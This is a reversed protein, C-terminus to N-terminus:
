DAKDLAELIDKELSSISESVQNRYETSKQLQAELSQTHNDIFALHSRKLERLSVLVKGTIGQGGTLGEEGSSDGWASDTDLVQDSENGNKKSKSAATGLGRFADASNCQYNKAREGDTGTSENGIYM